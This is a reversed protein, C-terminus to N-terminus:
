RLYVVADSLENGAIDIQQNQPYNHEHYQRLLQGIDNLLETLGVIPKNDKIQALAKDCLSQWMDPLIYQNIGRDAIIELRHECVNLYVLVGTNDATDWVGYKAFVQTARDRSNHTRALHLPLTNEIVLVVEGRHGQEAQSVAHSLKTQAQQNLWRNHICPIFLIQRWWRKLSPKTIHPRPSNQM